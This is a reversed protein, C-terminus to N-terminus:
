FLKLISFFIIKVKKIKVFFFCILVRGQFVRLEVLIYAM